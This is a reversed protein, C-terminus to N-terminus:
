DNRPASSGIMTNTAASLSWPLYRLTVRPLTGPERQTSDDDPPAALAVDARVLGTGNLDLRRLRRRLTRANGIRRSPDIHLVQRLLTGLPHKELRPMPIDARGQQRQQVPRMRRGAQGGLCALMVLGWAYLDFAPHAPAGSLQEPSSYAPSCTRPAKPTASGFDILRAQGSPTLMINRPKLDLHFIGVAHLYALVGLLEDMLMVTAVVDMPGHLLLHDHLTMGQIYDLVAFPLGDPMEGSDQLTPIRPHCLSRYLNVEHRLLRAALDISPAAPHAQKVAVIDGTGLRVAKHV